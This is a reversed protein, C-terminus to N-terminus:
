KVVLYPHDQKQLKPYLRYNFRIICLKFILKKFPDHESLHIKLGRLILNFHYINM